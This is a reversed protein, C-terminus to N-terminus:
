IKSDDFPIGAMGKCKRDLEIMLKNIAGNVLTSTVMRKNISVVSVFASVQENPRFDTYPSLEDPIVTRIVAKNAAFYVIKDGVGVIDDHQVYFAIYLADDAKKLKGVAPLPYTAPLTTSSIGQEDFKKKLLEL